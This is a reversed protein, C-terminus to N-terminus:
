VRLLMKRGILFARYQDICQSMLAESSRQLRILPPRPDCEGTRRLLVIATLAFAQVAITLVIFDRLGSHMTVQWVMLRAVLQTQILCLGPHDRFFDEVRELHTRRLSRPPPTM